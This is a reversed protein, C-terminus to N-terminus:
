ELLGASRVATIFSLRAKGASILGDLADLCHQMAIRYERGRKGPWRKLFEVAEWATSIILDATASKVRVPSPFNRQSMVRDEISFPVQWCVGARQSQERYIEPRQLAHSRPAYHARELDM